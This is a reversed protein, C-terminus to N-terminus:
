QRFMLIYLVLTRIALLQGWVDMTGVQPNAPLYHQHLCRAAYASAVVCKATYGISLTSGACEDFICAAIYQTNDHVVHCQSFKSYSFIAECETKISAYNAGCIEENTQKDPTAPCESRGDIKWSDGFEKSSGTPQLNKLISWKRYISFCFM